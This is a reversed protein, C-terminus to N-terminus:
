DRTCDASSTVRAYRIEDVTARLDVGNAGGLAYINVGVELTAPLDNREYSKATTWTSQGIERKYLSFNSGIRCLRLEADGSPWAPGEYDSVSRVTSKTEVSLGDEDFGVVIFVYDEDGPAPDRAMLGALHVTRNPPETPSSSRRARVIATAKFDGSVEKYVLTARSANFWLAGERMTLELAGSRVEISALESGLVRWSPDLAAGDFPDSLAEIETAGADERLAADRGENAADGAVGADDSVPDSSCATLLCFVAMRARVPRSYGSARRTTKLGSLLYLEPRM